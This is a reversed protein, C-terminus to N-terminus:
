EPVRRLLTTSGANGTVLQFDETMALYDMWGVPLAGEPMAVELAGSERDMGPNAGALSALWRRPGDPGLGGGPELRLAQFRIELRRESVPTYTAIAHSVGEVGAEELRLPTSIVYTNDRGFRPGKFVRAADGGTPRVPLSAPQYLGFSLASLPIPADGSLMKTMRGALTFGEFTGDNLAPDVRDAGAAASLARVAEIEADIESQPAGGTKLAVLAELGAALAAAAAPDRAAAAM